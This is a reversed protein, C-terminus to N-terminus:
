FLLRQLPVRKLCQFAAQHEASWQYPMDKKTLEFLPAAIKSFSQIFRRYYSALGVFLQLAKLDGPMAFNHVAM